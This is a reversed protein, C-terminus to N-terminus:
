RIEDRLWEPHKALVDEAKVRKEQFYRLIDKEIQAVQSATPKEGVERVKQQAFTALDEAMYSLKICRNKLFVGLEHSLSLPGKHAEPVAYIASLIEHQAFLGRKKFPDIATAHRKIESEMAAKDTNARVQQELLDIRTQLSDLPFPQAGVQPYSDGHGLGGGYLNARYGPEAYPQYGHRPAREFARRDTYPQQVQPRTARDFGPPVEGFGEFEPLVRAEVGPGGFNLNRAEVRVGGQMLRPQGPFVERAEAFRPSRFRMHDEERNRPIRGAFFNEAGAEEPTHFAESRPRAEPTETRRKLYPNAELGNEKLLHILPDTESRSNLGISLESLQVNPYVDGTGVNKVELGEGGEAVATAKVFIRGLEEEPRYKFRCGVLKEGGVLKGLNEVAKREKQEAGASTM